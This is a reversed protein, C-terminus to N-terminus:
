FTAEIKLDFWDAFKVLIEGAARINMYPKFKIDYYGVIVDTEKLANTDIFDQETKWGFTAQGDYGACAHSDDTDLICFRCPLAEVVPHSRVLDDEVLHILEKAAATAM